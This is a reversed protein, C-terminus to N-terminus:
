SMLSTLLELGGLSCRLELINFYYLCRLTMESVSVIGADLSYPSIVLLYIVTKITQFSAKVFSRAFLKGSAM